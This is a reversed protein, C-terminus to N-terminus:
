AKRRTVFPAFLLLMIALDSATLVLEIIDHAVYDTVLAVSTFVQKLAFVFFALAVWVLARNGRERRARIAVGAFVLALLAVLAATASAYPVVQPAFDDHALFLQFM